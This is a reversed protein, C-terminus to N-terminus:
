KPGPSAPDIRLRVATGAGPASEISLTGNLARAREEMGLLGYGNRQQEVNFGVGDDSVVLECAAGDQHLKVAVQTAHAHRRVNSLSEQVIRFVMTAADPPLLHASADLEARCPVDTHRTFEAALWEIAAPLGADLAPPRLQTVLGRISAVLGDVRDVLMDLPGPETAGAVASRKRLVSVEMRLAALQQGMEDHLERSVRMREEELSRANHVGLMRVAERSRELESTRESVLGELYRQRQALARIRWAYLSWALAIAVLTAAAYFASTRWWPPMVDFGVSTVPSRTQADDDITMVELRYRGPPLTSFTVEPGASASWADDLGVLRYHFRQSRRGEFVLNGFAAKLPSQAWPLEIRSAVDLAQEGRVLSVIPANRQPVPFMSDVREIHQVGRSTGVWISGDTDEYLAHENCDNWVLGNDQSFFRWSDKNRVAVGADTILWLWGRRDEQMGVIARGMLRPPLIQQLTASGNTWHTQWVGDHPGGALLADGTATCAITTFSSASPLPKGDSGRVAVRALREGDWRILGADTTFWLIHSGTECGAFNRPGHAPDPNIETDVRRPRVTGDEADVVFLGQQTSIWIRGSSDALLRFIRPLTAVRVRKGTKAGVKDLQGSIDGIWLNGELDQAISSAPQLSRSPHEAVLRRKEPQMLSIGTATGVHLRDQRDRLISWVEDDLLGDKSTWATLHRYGPWHALGYGAPGMWLNGDRDVLLSTVGSSATLGHRADVPEWATGAWRVIGTSSSTVISGAADEVIPTESLGDDHSLGPRPPTRDIFGTAGKRRQLIRTSSRLWLDGRSDEYINSWGDPDAEPVSSVDLQGDHWRCLSRACALWLTGDKAVHVRRIDRLVRHGALQEDDFFPRVSWSGAQTQRMEMLNRRSVAFVRGSGDSALNDRAGMAIAASGMLVPALKGKHMRSVGTESGIWLGGDQGIHLALVQRVPSDDAAEWRVFTVGDYRYLGNPTGVWIFGDRDQALANVSLNALGESQNHYQISYQQALGPFPACILAVLLLLAWRLRRGPARRFLREDAGDHSQV